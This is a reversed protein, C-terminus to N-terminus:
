LEPKEKREFADIYSGPTCNYIKINKEKAYKEIVVYSQFAICLSYLVEHLFETKIIKEPPLSTESSTQPYFHEFQNTILNNKDIRLTKLWDNEAGFLFIKTYHSYIALMLVAIIVNRPRPMGRQKNYALKCLWKWGEVPTTNFYRLQLHPNSQFKKILERNKRAHLPLYIELPWSTVSLICEILDNVRKQLSENATGSWFAPDCMVYVSPKYIQYLSTSGMFNIAILDFKDLIDKNEQLSSYLSPGNGLIICQNNKRKIPSIKYFLKNFIFLRIISLSSNIFDSFYKNYNNIM